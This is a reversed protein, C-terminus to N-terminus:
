LHSAFLKSKSAAGETQIILARLRHSLDSYAFTSLALVRYSLSPSGDIRHVLRAVSSLPNVLEACHRPLLGSM